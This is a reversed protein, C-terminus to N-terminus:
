ERRCVVSHLHNEVHILSMPASGEKLKTNHSSTNNWTTERQYEYEVLEHRIHQIHLTPRKETRLRPDMWM